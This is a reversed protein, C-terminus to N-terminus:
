FRFFVRLLGQWIGETDISGELTFNESAKYNITVQPPVDSRNPAALVSANVRDNIDYGVEAAFVLQPPVRRSRREESSSLSPSVYTPYLAFSVRQSFADSLTGLLPSLLTQGLVTALATGAQGGSLGALSNGGILAVLREQPLPPNSSFSLNDAIRDAPGSVSVTVLVLKLQNLRSFGGQAEVVSLSPDSPSGIGSPGIVSLSDSVRTRLAIDLYPVLGLSPTFIAVNPSDPDLSFSTTFLNLRGGLLKVVGSAQLSPDLRGSIRLRGGARFNGVNGITVRLDPGLRVVMDEFRLWSARPIAQRLSEATSSEVDPGLLVLPQSFNWKSEILQNMSQPRVEQGSGPASGEPVGALQGPTANLSGERIAVDGGLRPRLLSGALRLRGDGVADLRPVRFPVKELRVTLTPQDDLPRV